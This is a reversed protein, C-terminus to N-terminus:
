KSSEFKLIVDFGSTKSSGGQLRFFLLKNLEYELTITEPTIEDDETEGFGRQYIVFLDNTIYKGVVFAASTWNETSNVEIMDLKFRQGITSNLSSTIASALMNSGVSGIIGNQGDYSLEDMTKGFVMISVADSESIAADDLTFEITPESLFETVSLRLIHKERDSGRFTYEATIELRPDPKEGGSFTIFGEEINFKRGYLIYHGRVVEVDGFLEFYDGSKAIDFDGSIEINMDDSKLWTGRRIDFTLRGKLQKILPSITEVEFEEVSLEATDELQIAQVLLPVNDKGNSRESDILNQLYFSSRNVLVKGGFLPNDKEDSKYYPDGSLNIDINKHQVVHFNSIDTILNSSKLKGSVITTDFELYGKSAFYGKDSNVVLTDVDIVNNNFTLRSAIDSYYIGLKQNTLFGDRLNLYGNLMPTKVSGDAQIIGDLYAGAELYQYAGMEPKNISLSDIVLQMKFSDSASVSMADRSKLNIKLPLALHAFLSSDLSPVWTDFLLTDADYNIQGEVSPLEFRNYSPDALTYEGKIRISDPEGFMKISTSLRGGISDVEEIMKNFMFLNLRDINLEFDENLHSSLQGRAKFDFADDWRDNIEINNVLLTKDSLQFKQITDTLYFQAYPLTLEAENFSFSLTDGFELMADLQGTVTDENDFTISTMLSDSKFAFSASLTDLPMFNNNISHMGVVGNALLSGDKFEGDFSANTVNVLLGGMNFGNLNMNASYEFFSDDGKAAGNFIAKEFDLDPVGYRELFKLHSSQLHVDSEFSKDSLNYRGKLEMYNDPLYVTAADAVFDVGSL